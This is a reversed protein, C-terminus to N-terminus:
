DLVTGDIDIVFAPEQPGKPDYDILRHKILRVFGDGIRGLSNADAVDIAAMVVPDVHIAISRAQRNPRGVEPIAWNIRLRRGGDDVVTAHPPFLPMVYPEAWDALQGM